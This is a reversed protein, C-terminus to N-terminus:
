DIPLGISNSSPIVGARVVSETLPALASVLESCGEDGLRSWPAASARDTAAEVDIRLARGAGSLTGDEELLGRDRLAREAVDWEEETFGRAARLAERTIAGTGVMSVHAEIGSLGACV